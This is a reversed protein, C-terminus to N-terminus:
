RIKLNIEKDSLRTNQQPAATHIQQTHAASNAVYLPVDYLCCVCCGECIDRAKELALLQIPLMGPIIMCVGSVVGKVSIGPM